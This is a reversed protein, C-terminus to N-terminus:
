SVRSQISSWGVSLKSAANRQRNLGPAHTKSLRQGAYAAWRSFPFASLLFVTRRAAPQQWPLSDVYFPPAYLAYLSQVSCIVMFTTKFSDVNGCLIPINISM